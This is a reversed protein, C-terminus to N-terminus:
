VTLEIGPLDETLADVMAEYQVLGWGLLDIARNTCASVCLGCGKCNATVVKAQQGTRGEGEAPVMVLAGPTPCIEVCAATGNCREPDVYAVFPELEVEGRRLM